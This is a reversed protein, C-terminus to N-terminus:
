PIAINTYSPVLTSPTLLDVQWINNAAWTTSILTHTTVPTYIGGPLAPNVSILYISIQSEITSDTCEKYNFNLIVASELM